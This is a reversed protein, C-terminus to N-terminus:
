KKIKVVGHEDKSKSDKKIDKTDNAIKAPTWYLFLKKYTYGM